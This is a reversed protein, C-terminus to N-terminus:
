VRTHLSYVANKIAECIEGITHILREADKGTQHIRQYIQIILSESRQLHSNVHASTKEVFSKKLEIAKQGFGAFPAMWSSIKTIGSSVAGSGIASIGGAIGLGASICQMGIELRSAIVGQMDKAASMWSAVKNYVGTAQFIRSAASTVGSALMLMSAKNAKGTAFSFAGLALASGTFINQTTSSILSWKKETAAAKSFEQIRKLKEEELRNMEAFDRQTQKELLDAETNATSEFRAYTGLLSYMFHTSRSAIIPTM